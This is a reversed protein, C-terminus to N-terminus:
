LHTKLWEYADSDMYAAWEKGVVIVFVNDNTDIITKLKDRIDSASHQTTSILWFSDYYKWYGGLSKLVEAVEEYKQGPNHLDYTVAYVAM